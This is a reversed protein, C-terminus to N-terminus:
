VIFSLVKEANVRGSIFIENKILAVFCCLLGVGAFM